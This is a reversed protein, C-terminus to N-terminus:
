EVGKNVKGIWITLLLFINYLLNSSMMISLHLIFIWMYIVYHFYDADYFTRSHMLLVIVHFVYKIVVLKLGIFHQVNIKRGQKKCVEGAAVWLELIAHHSENAKMNAGESREDWVWNVPPIGNAPLRVFLSIPLPYLSNWAGLWCRETFVQAARCRPTGTGATVCRRRMFNSVCHFVFRSMAPYRNSM